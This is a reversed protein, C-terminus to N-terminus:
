ATRRDETAILHVTLARCLVTAEEHTLPEVTVCQDGVFVPICATTTAIRYLDRFLVDPAM